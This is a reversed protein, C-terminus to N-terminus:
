RSISIVSWDSIVLVRSYLHTIMILSSVVPLKFAMQHWIYVTWTMSALHKYSCTCEWHLIDILQRIILMVDLQICRVMEIRGSCWWISIKICNQKDDSFQIISRCNLHNLRTNLIFENFLIQCIKDIVDKSGLWWVIM